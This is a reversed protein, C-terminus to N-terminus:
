SDTGIALLTSLVCHVASSETPVRVTAGCPLDIEISTTPAVSVPVFPFAQEEAVEKSLKKRWLYFSKQPIDQRQWFETITLGSERHESFWAEWQERSYRRRQMVQSWVFILIGEVAVHM